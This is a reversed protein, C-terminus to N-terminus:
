FMILVGPMIALVYRSTTKFPIYVQAEAKLYVDSIPLMLSVSPVVYYKKQLNGNSQDWNLVQRDELFYSFGLGFMWKFSSSRDSFLYKLSGSLANYAFMNLSTEIYLKDYVRLALQGSILNSNWYKATVGKSIAAGLGASIYFHSRVERNIMELSEASAIYRPIESKLIPSSDDRPMEYYQDKIFRYLTRRILLRTYYLSAESTLENRAASALPETHAYIQFPTRKDYLYMEFNNNTLVSIIVIDTNLKAVITRFSELTLSPMTSDSTSVNISSGYAQITDKILSTIPNIVKLSTYNIPRLVYVKSSKGESTTLKNILSQTASTKFQEIQMAEASTVNISNETAGNSSTDQTPATLSSEQPIENSSSEQPIENSNEAKIGSCISLGLISFLLLAGARKSKTIQIKVAVKEIVLLSM